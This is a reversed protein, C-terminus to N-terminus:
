HALQTWSGHKADIDLRIDGHEDGSKILLDRETVLDLVRERDVIWFGLELDEDCGVARCVPGVIDYTFEGIPADPQKSDFPAESLGRRLVRGDGSCGTLDYEKRVRRGVM